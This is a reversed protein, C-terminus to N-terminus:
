VDLIIFTLYVELSAAMEPSEILTLAKEPHPWLEVRDAFNIFALSLTGVAGADMVMVGNCVFTQPALIYLYAAGDKGEAVVVAVAAVPYEHSKIPVSRNDPSVMSEPENVECFSTTLNEDFLAAIM